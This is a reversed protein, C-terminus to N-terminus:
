ATHNNAMRRLHVVGAAVLLAMVAAGVFAVIAAYGAIRGITDWAFTSLLAGRLVEGRFM